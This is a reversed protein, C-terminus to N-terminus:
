SSRVDTSVPSLAAAARFICGIRVGEEIPADGRAQIRDFRGPLLEPVQDSPVLWASLHDAPAVARSGAPPSGSAGACRPARRGNARGSGSATSSSGKETCSRTWAGPASAPGRGAGAASRRGRAASAGVPGASSFGPASRCAGGRRGGHPPGCRNKRRLETPTRNDPGPGALLRKPPHEGGGAGEAAPCRERGLRRGRSEPSLADVREGATREKVIGVIRDEGFRRKRM